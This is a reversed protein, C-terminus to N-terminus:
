LITEMAQIFGHLELVITNAYRLAEEEGMLKTKGYV